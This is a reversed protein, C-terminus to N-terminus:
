MGPGTFCTSHNACSTKLEFKIFRATFAALERYFTTQGSAIVANSFPGVWPGLHGRLFNAKLTQIPERQRANDAHHIKFTLVYLFELEIAIHDPLEGLQPDIDFGGETYLALVTSAPQAADDGPTFPSALWSSGYPSALAGMPGLFLRTYDVLLTEIDQESFAERLKRAHQVLDPHLQEAAVVMNDFLHEEAFDAAPECHCASLFRYLDIRAIAETPDYNSM